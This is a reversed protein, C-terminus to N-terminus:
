DFLPVPIFKRGDFLGRDSLKLDPIVLLAMFSLTMFPASLTCGMTKVASSLKEYKGAVTEVRDDSMIGGVPLALSDIIAGNVSVALGGKLKIVENIAAALDDDNTGAAIINHSDHAISGAFAGHKLGFGRIFGTAPKNDHYRDKVVLKIVDIEPAADVFVGPLPEWHEIGTDLRGDLATIVKLISGKRKVKIDDSSIPSANFKNLIGPKPSDFLVRGNDFVKNGKIWTEQVDMKKYDGVIIFDAPDDKRLIGCNLKYHQVPNVSCARLVNYVDFGENILSAAVNGIHRKLLMEPHLDDSCLMVMEPDTRILDKLSELNRAASGERILVKMKLGIKERAEALTMCEHDTSIGANVYAELAPGSLGPAHGDIPKGLKRAARIKCIVEPDNNIVGPFNMMESLFWIRESALIEQTDKCSISAGANEFLTAPVCSPLCFWFYLPVKEGEDIMYWVGELGIINAIEHPDSIVGITGHPVAAAAFAGPTVMSSEIHVHSDILGPLIFRDYPSEERVISRIIGKRIDITAPYIERIHVDILNGSIKM